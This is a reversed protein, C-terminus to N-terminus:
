EIPGRGLDAGCYVGEAGGKVAALGDADRMLRTCSRDTGAVLEITVRGTGEWADSIVERIGAIGRVTEM